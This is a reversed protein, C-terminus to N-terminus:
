EGEYPEPYWKKQWAIVEYRKALPKGNEWFWEGNSWIAARTFRIDCDKSKATIYCRCEESPLEKKVSIWVSIKPQSFISKKVDEVNITIPFNDIDRDPCMKGDIIFLDEILKKEEIM